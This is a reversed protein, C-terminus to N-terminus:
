RGGEWTPGPQRTIELDQSYYVKMEKETEQHHTVTSPHRTITILVGHQDLWLVPLHCALVLVFCVHCDCLCTAPSCRLALGVRDSLWTSCIGKLGSTLVAPQHSPPLMLVWVAPRLLRKSLFSLKFHCHSSVSNVVLGRGTLSRPLLVRDCPVCPLPVILTGCCSLTQVFLPGRSVRGSGVTVRPWTM